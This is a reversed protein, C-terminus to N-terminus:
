QHQIKLASIKTKQKHCITFFVRQFLHLLVNAVQDHDALQNPVVREKETGPVHQDQQAFQLGVEKVDAVVKGGGDSQSVVWRGRQQVVRAKGVAHHHEFLLLEEHPVDPINGRPLLERNGIHVRHHRPALPSPLELLAVEEEALTFSAEGGRMVFILKKSSQAALILATDGQNGRGITANLAWAAVTNEGLAACVNLGFELLGTVRKVPAASSKM